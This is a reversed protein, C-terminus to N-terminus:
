AAIARLECTRRLLGRHPPVALRHGARRTHWTRRDWVVTTERQNAIGCAAVSAVPVAARELVARAADLQARWIATADQAVWGPQPFHSEFPRSHMALREGRSNYLAARASTTGEDLSLVCAQSSKIGGPSM